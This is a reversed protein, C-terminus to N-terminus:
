RQESMTYDLRYLKSSLGSSSHDIEHFTFSLQDTLLSTVTTTSTIKSSSENAQLINAQPMNAQSKGESVHFDSMSGGCLLGTDFAPENRPQEAQMQARTHGAVNTPSAGASTIIDTIWELVDRLM